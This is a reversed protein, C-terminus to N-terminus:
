TTNFLRNYALKFYELLQHVSRFWHVETEVAYTKLFSVFLIQLIQGGLLLVYSMKKFIDILTEATLFTTKRYNRM